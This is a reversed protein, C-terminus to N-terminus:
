AEFAEIVWDPLSQRRASLGALIPKRCDIFSLGVMYGLAVDCTQASHMETRLPQETDIEVKDEKAIM